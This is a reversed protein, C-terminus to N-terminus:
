EDKNLAANTIFSKLDNRNENTVEKQEHSALRVLSENYYYVIFPDLSTVLIYFRIDYKRGM